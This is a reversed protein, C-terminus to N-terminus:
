ALAISDTWLHVTTRNLDLVERVKLILKVLLVAASLDLRAIMMRKLPASKDKSVLIM